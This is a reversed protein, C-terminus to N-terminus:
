SQQPIGLDADDGLEQDVALLIPCEPRHQFSTGPCTHVIDRSM